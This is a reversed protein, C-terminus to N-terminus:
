KGSSIELIAEGSVPDTVGLGGGLDELMERFADLSKIMKPRAAVIADMSGWEGIICYSRDGTKIMALKKFGSYNHQMNQVAQEFDKERGAKVRNRVVNYATMANEGNSRHTRNPAVTCRLSASRDLRTPYSVALRTSAALIGNATRMEDL